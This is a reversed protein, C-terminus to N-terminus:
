QFDILIMGTLLGEDFVKLIKDHLYSLCDNTSHRGRFGSLFKYLINNNSLFKNTQDHVVREIIKSM